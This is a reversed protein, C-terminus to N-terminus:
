RRRASSGGGGSRGGQQKPAKPAKGAKSKKAGGTKVNVKNNGLYTRVCRFGIFSRNETQYEYTRNM